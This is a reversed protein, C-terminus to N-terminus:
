GGTVCKWGCPWVAWAKGFLVVPPLPPTHTRLHESAWSTPFRENLGSHGEKACSFVLATLGGHLKEKFLQM